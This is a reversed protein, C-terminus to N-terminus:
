GMRIRDAFPSTRKQEYYANFDLRCILFRLDSSLHGLGPQAELTRLLSQLRVLFGAGIQDLQARCESLSRAFPFPGDPERRLIDFAEFASACVQEHLDTFELALGFLASLATHIPETKAALFAGEEICALYRSHELIVQDLDTCSRWGAQLKAWSTELVECMVYSHINQVFHHMENRLCTCKHLTQRTELGIDPARQGLQQSSSMLHRQLAMHQSWCSALAHSVRRLKWLFAFGRHYQQMALPTFVVHLPSDIAYDLLFVDWGREGASPQLLKVGLRAIVDAPCFQANSQRVAMDVIGMLHHRHIEGADRCLETEALDM